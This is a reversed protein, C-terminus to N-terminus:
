GVHYDPIDDIDGWWLKWERANRYTFDDHLSVGYNYVWQNPFWDSGNGTAMIYREDSKLPACSMTKRFYFRKSVPANVGLTNSDLLGTTVEFASQNGFLCADGDFPCSANPFAQIPLQRSYFM